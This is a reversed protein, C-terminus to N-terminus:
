LVAELEVLGDSFRGADGRLEFRLRGGEEPMGDSELVQGPRVIRRFRITRVARITQPVGSGRRAAELLLQLHAVGPLVPDGPFHGEFCPHDGTVLVRCTWGSAEARWELIEFGSAASFMPSSLLSSAALRGHDGPRPLVRGIQSPRPRCAAQDQRHRRGGGGGRRHRAVDFLTQGAADLIDVRVAVDKDHGKACHM